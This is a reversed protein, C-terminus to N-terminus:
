FRELLVMGGQFNIEIIRGSLRKRDGFVSTIELTDGRVEIRALSELFMEEKGDGTLYANMECM